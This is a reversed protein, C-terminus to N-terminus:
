TVYVNQSHHPCKGVQFNQKNIPLLDTQILQKSKSLKPMEMYGIWLSM